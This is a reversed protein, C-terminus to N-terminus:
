EFISYVKKINEDGIQNFYLTDYCFLSIKDGKGSKVKSHVWSAIQLLEDANVGQFRLEDGYRFYTDGIVTDCIVTFITSDTQKCLESNEKLEDLTMPSLIGKFKSNRFLTAWSYVPLAIDLKLPYHSHNIYTKISELDVIANKEDANTPDGTSYCMLLCRKVPPIGALDHDRYQWLRLSSQIETNPLLTDMESLMEFYKDKTSVSWDCDILLQTNEKEWVKKMSDTKLRCGNENQYDDMYVMNWYIRDSYQEAFRKRMSKYLSAIKGALEKIGSAETFELVDNTIFIVPTINRMSAENPYFV